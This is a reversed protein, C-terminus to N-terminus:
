KGKVKVFQSKFESISVSNKNKGDYEVWDGDEIEVDEFAQGNEVCKVIYGTRPDFDVPEIGRCDFLVFTKFTGSDSETYSAQSGEVVDMSNERSCLKCKIVLNYGKANRTDQKVKEDECIDHWVDDM